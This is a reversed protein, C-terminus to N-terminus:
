SSLSCSTHWHQYTRFRSQNRHLRNSQLGASCKGTRNHTAIDVRVIDSNYRGYIRDM